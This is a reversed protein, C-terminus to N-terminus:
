HLFRKLDTPDLVQQELADVLTVFEDVDGLPLWDEPERVIFDRKQRLAHLFGRFFDTDEKEQLYAAANRVSLAIIWVFLQTAEVRANKSDPPETM